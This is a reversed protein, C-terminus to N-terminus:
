DRSETSQMLLEYEKMTIKRPVIEQLFGFVDDEDNNVINALNRYEISKGSSDGKYFAQATLYTVFLEAAKSMCFVADVGISEVDPSSKMITKIKNLPLHIAADRSSSM